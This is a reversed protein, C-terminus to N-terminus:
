TESIWCVISASFPTALLLDAVQPVGRAEVITEVVARYERALSRALESPDAEVVPEVEVWTAEGTGAVGLGVIGRRLGRIVVARVGGRLEGMEEVKAITGVKAYGSDTKPVLLLLGGSGSATDAAARADESELTLTVVMGPLVVGTTLPLLPLARVDIEPM